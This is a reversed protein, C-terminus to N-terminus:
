PQQEDDEGRDDEVEDADLDQSDWAQALLKWCMEELIKTHMEPVSSNKLVSLPPSLTTGVVCALRPGWGHSCFCPPAQSLVRVEM